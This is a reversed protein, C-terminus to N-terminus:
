LSGTSVFSFSFRWTSLRAFKYSFFDMMNARSFVADAVRFLRDSYAEGFCPASSHFQGDGFLAPIGLFDSVLCASIGRSPARLISANRWPTRVSHELSQAALSPVTYRPAREAPLGM